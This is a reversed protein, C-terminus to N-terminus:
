DDEKEKKEQWRGCWELADTIPWGARYPLFEYDEFDRYTPSWHAIPPGFRCLGWDGSDGAKDTCSCWYNCEYCRELM